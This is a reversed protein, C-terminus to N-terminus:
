SEQVQNQAITSAYANGTRILISKVDYLSRTIDSIEQRMDELKGVEWLRFFWELGERYGDIDGDKAVWGTKKHLIGEACATRDFALAPTGCLMAEIKVIGQTEQISPFAFVDSQHYFEIIQEPTSAIGLFCVKIAGIKAEEGSEGFIHLETKGQIEVPLCELASVLDLYGKYQNGRGGYCGFLIVFKPNNIRKEPYIRFKADVIYPIHFVLHNKGIFSKEVMSKVWQSPCVFSVNKEKAFKLKRLFMFRELWKSNGSYFGNVFRSDTGPHGNLANLMQFDHMHVIIPPNIKELEEYSADDALFHLHVVDPKLKNIIRGVGSPLLNLCLQMRYHTFRWFNRLFKCAINFFKQKLTGPVPYVMVGEMPVEGKIHQTLVISDVGSSLLAHHLRTMGIAAGGTNAVGFVHGLHVVRM